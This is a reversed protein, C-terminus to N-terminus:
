IYYEKDTKTPIPIYDKCGNCENKSGICLEQKSLMCSKNNPTLNTIEDSDDTIEYKMTYSKLLELDKETKVRISTKYITDYEFVTKNILDTKCRATINNFKCYLYEEDIYIVTGITNNCIIADDKNLIYMNGGIQFFLM